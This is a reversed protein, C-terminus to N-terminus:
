QVQMTQRERPKRTRAAQSPQFEDGDTAVLPPFEEGKAVQEAARGIEM